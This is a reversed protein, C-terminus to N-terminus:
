ERILSVTCNEIILVEDYDLIIFHWYAQDYDVLESILWQKENLNIYTRDSVDYRHFLERINQGLVSFVCTVRNDFVHRM